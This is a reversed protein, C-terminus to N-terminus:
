VVAPIITSALVVEFALVYGSRKQQWVDVQVSNESAHDAVGVEEALIRCENHLKDLLFSLFEQADQQKRFANQPSMDPDFETLFRFFMFPFHKDRLYDPTWEGDKAQAIWRAMVAEWGGKFCEMMESFATLVPCIPRPLEVKELCQM